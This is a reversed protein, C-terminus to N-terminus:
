PVIFANRIFDLNPFEKQLYANGEERIRSQDPTEGYGSYIRDVHDMGSVVKGVPAFGMSDLGSNDGLNIFMHTTRSNPQSQAAFSIAGRTNSVTVPDDPIPKEWAKSVATDAAAGWQVVFGPVVRYFRSGDFYGAKVLNYLRDAGHPAQARTIEAVIQGRTTDFEVIFKAPATVEQPAAQAVEQKPAAPQTKETALGAPQEACGALIAIGALMLFNRTTM